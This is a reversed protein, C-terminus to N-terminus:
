PVPLVLRKGSCADQGDRARKRLYDIFARQTEADGDLQRLLERVTAPSPCGDPGDIWAATVTSNTSVSSQTMVAPRGSRAGCGAVCLVAIAAAAYRM